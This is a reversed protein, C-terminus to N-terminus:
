FAFHNCINKVNTPFYKRAQFHPVLKDSVGLLLWKRCDFVKWFGVDAGEIDWM